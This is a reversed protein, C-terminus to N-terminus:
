DLGVSVISINEEDDRFVGSFSEHSRGAMTLGCTVLRPLPRNAEIGIDPPTDL